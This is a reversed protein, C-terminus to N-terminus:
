GNPKDEKSQNDPHQPDDKAFARPYGDDDVFMDLTNTHGSEDRVMVRDSLNGLIKKM